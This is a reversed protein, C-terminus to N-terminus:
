GLWEWWALRLSGLARRLLHLLPSAAQTDIRANGQLGPRLGARTQLLEAEVEFVNRGEVAKAMPSIRTVRLPLSDWPMASLTLSGLLAQQAATQELRPMDREDIEVMVRFRDSPALTLLEAGEKVPAGLQQSLDGQVVIADFPALLRARQLREDVLELQAQAEDARSQLLVLQSRDARAQAAALGDLHQALQSQWRQRELQLEQDALDILPQGARVTDGARAHVQHVFGDMPASVIRQVAGELRARGGVQAPWPMLLAGVLLLGLVAGMQRLSRQRRADASAWWLRLGDRTRRWASRENAAMLALLPAALCALHELQEVTGLDIAPGDRRLVCLAGILEGDAVLPVGAASAGAGVQAVLAAHARTIRPVVGVGPAPEPWMVPATQDFCEACSALFATQVASGPAPLSGDSVALLNLPGAGQSSSAAMALWVQGMNLQRALGVVLRQAAASCRPQALMTAHLALALAARNGHTPPTLVAQQGTATM